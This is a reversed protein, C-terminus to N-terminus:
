RLLQSTHGPFRRDLALGPTSPSGSAAGNGLSGIGRHLEAPEIRGAMLSSRVAICCLPQLVRQTAIRSAPQQSAAFVATQCGYAGDCRRGGCFPWQPPQRPFARRARQSGPGFRAAALPTVLQDARLSRLRLLTARRMQM